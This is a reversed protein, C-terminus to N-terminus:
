WKKSDLLSDVGAKTVLEGHVLDIEKIANLIGDIIHKPANSNTLATLLGSLLTLILQTTFFM